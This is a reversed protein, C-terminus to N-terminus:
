VNFFREFTDHRLSGLLTDNVANEFKYMLPFDTFEREFLGRRLVSLAHRMEEMGPTVNNDLQEDEHDEPEHKLAELRNSDMSKPEFWPPQTVPVNADVDMWKRWIPQSVPVDSPVKRWAKAPDEQPGWKLGSQRWCDRVLQEDVDEWASNLYHITDLLSIRKALELIPVESPLSEMQQIMAHCLRRRFFTKTAQILGQDCPQLHTATNSPFHALEINTLAIEPYHESCDDVLLLIWRGQTRLESDWARLWESFLYGTMWAMPDSAYNVPLYKVGRFSRPNQNRGIVFIPKKEGSMSCCFLATVRDKADIAFGKRRQDKSSNTIGTTNNGGEPLTRFLFASETANWIDEEQYRELLTPWVSEMWRERSEIDAGQCEGLHFLGDRKKFRSWWGDTAKFEPKNMMKAMEEAKKKVMPGSLPGNKERVSRIWEMMAIELEPDKGMRRRKRKGKEEKM